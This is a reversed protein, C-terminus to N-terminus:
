PWFNLGLSLLTEDDPCQIELPHDQLLWRYNQFGGLFQERRKWQKKELFFLDDNEQEMHQEMHKGHKGQKKEWTNERNKGHEFHTEPQSPGLPPHLWPASRQATPQHITTRTYHM